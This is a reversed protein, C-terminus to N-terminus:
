HLDHGSWSQLGGRTNVPLHRYSAGASTWMAPLAECGGPCEGLRARRAAASAPAAMASQMSSRARRDPEGLSAPPALADGSEGTGGSPRLGVPGARVRNVINIRILVWPLTLVHVFGPPPRALRTRGRSMKTMLVRKSPVSLKGSTVGVTAARSRVWRCRANGQLRIM